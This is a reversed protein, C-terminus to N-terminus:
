GNNQDSGQTSVFLHVDAAETIRLAAETIRLFILVFLSLTNM